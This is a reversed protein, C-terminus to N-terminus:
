KGRNQESFAGCRPIFTCESFVDVQFSYTLRGDIVWFQRHGVRYRTSDLVIRLQVPSM